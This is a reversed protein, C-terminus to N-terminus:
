NINFPATWYAGLIFRVSFFFGKKETRKKHPIPNELILMAQQSKRKIM